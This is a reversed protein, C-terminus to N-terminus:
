KVMATWNIVVNLPPADPNLKRRVVLFRGDRTVDYDPLAYPFLASPASPRLEGGDVSVAVEMMQKRVPDVYYLRKGDRSWRPLRAAGTSVQVRAGGGAMPTAYLQMQGSENSVYALWKGDPSVAGDRDNFKTGALVRPTHPPAIPVALLDVGTEPGRAEVIVLKGDPTVDTPYNQVMTRTLRELSGDASRLFLNPPTDVAASYIMRRSDPMWVPQGAWREFAVRTAAGRSVDLFWVAADADSRACAIRREDPSIRCDAYPGLAGITALERGTRDAFALQSVVPAGAVHYVLTGSTSASFAARGPAHYEIDDEIKQRDGILELKKDDFKQAYLAKGENYLIYGPAYAVRSPAIDNMAVLRKRTNSSLSGAYIGRNATVASCYLFRDGDPLFWPWIEVESGKTVKVAPGGSAAVRYLQGDSGPSFLIVDRSNWTGGGPIGEVPEYLAHLTGDTLDLRWLKNRATFAIRKGDPSWFVHLAGETGKLQKAELSDLSRLWLMSGDLSMARFIIARGDPSVAPIGEFVTQPPPPITFRVAAAQPQPARLKVIAAIMAIAFLGALTWPLWSLRGPARVEAQVDSIWRLETAVDHASQMRADPDKALCTRILRELAAPTLPRVQSILPPQSSVIAAIISTRSKGEFAPRGAAMEYLLAGLAFIDSRHDINEGELQEPSMYRLTGVISGEQTLPKQETESLSSRLGLIAAQTRALGFDLLKAGTKTLMVNGPKLDRHVIGNRHAKELADAIEAGYRIVDAVPMPGRGIRDALSEGEILEMVLYDTGDQHGVDYLTCINPHNLQSITKAERELRLKLQANTSFEAPLIKIAVSRELRKDRARWVEGMGGAGLPALIEYPGIQSGPTVRM